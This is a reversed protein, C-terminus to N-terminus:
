AFNTMNAISANMVTHLLKQRDSTTYAAKLLLETLTAVTPNTFGQESKLDCLIATATAM